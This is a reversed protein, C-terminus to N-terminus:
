SSKKDHLSSCDGQEPTLYGLSNISAKLGKNRSHKEVRLHWFYIYIYASHK